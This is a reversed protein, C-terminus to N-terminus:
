WNAMETVIDGFESFHGFTRGICYRSKFSRTQCAAIKMVLSNSCSLEPVCQRSGSFAIVSVWYTQHQLLIACMPYASGIYRDSSCPLLACRGRLHMPLFLSPLGLTGTRPCVQEKCFGATTCLCSKYVMQSQYTDM